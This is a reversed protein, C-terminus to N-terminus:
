KTIVDKDRAFISLNNAGAREYVTSEGLWWAFMVKLFFITCFHKCVETYASGSIFV